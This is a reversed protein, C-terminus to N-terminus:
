GGFTGIDKLTFFISIVTDDLRDAIHLEFGWCCSEYRTIFRNELFEDTRADFRSQVEVEARRALKLGVKRAMNLLRVGVGASYFETERRTFRYDFTAFWVQGIDYRVETNAAVTEGREHNYRGDFNVALGPLPSTDLDVVFDSFPGRRRINNERAEQINFEQGVELRVVERIRRESGSGEQTLFRNVLLLSATERGLISRDFPDRDFEDVPDLLLIRRSDDEDFDSVIAYRLRPEIFHKLRWGAAGGPAGASGGFRRSFVPGEVDFGAALLERSFSDSERPLRDLRGNANLDEFGQLVGDGDTDESFDNLRRAYTTSRVGARPTLTLWPGTHIPWSIQPFLDVRQVDFREENRQHFNAVTGEAQFFFPSPGLRREFATFGVQPLRGFSEDVANRNADLRTVGDLIEALFQVHLNETAKTITLFSETDRRTRILVNDLEFERDFSERNQADVKLLAQFDYPLRQRHNAKISYFERDTKQDDLYSASISGGSEKSLLYRYEWNPRLGRNELYDVGFTMDQSENIAWYFRPQIFFGDRSNIGLKPALLGSQRERKLPVRLYPVYFVPTNKINFSVGRLSAHDDVIVTGERATFHWTPVEEGCNCTTFEGNSIHYRSPELREIREGKMSFSPPLFAEGDYLTGLGSYINFEIRSAKLSSQKEQMVINGVAVGDGSETNLEIRDAYMTVGSYVIEVTGLAELLRQPEDYTIRDANITAPPVEKEAAPVGAPALVLLLGALLSLLDGRARGLPRGPARGAPTVRRVTM